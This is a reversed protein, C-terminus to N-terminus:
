IYECVLSLYRFIYRSLYSIQSFTQSTSVLSQTCIRTLSRTEFLFVSLVTGISHCGLSNAAAKTHASTIGLHSISVVCEPSRPQM